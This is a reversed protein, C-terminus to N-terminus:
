VICIIEKDCAVLDICVTHHVYNSFYYCICLFYILVNEVFLCDLCYKKYAVLNICIIVCLSCFDVTYLSLM